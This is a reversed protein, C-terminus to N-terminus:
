EPPPTSGIETVTNNSHKVKYKEKAKSRVRRLANMLSYLTKKPPPPFSEHSAVYNEHSGVEGCIRRSDLPLPMCIDAHLIIALFTAASINLLKIALETVVTALYM